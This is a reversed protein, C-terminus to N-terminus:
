SIMKRSGKWFLFPGVTKPIFYTNLSSLFCSGPSHTNTSTVFGIKSRLEVDSTAYHFEEEYQHTVDLTQWASFRVLCVLTSSQKTRKEAHCVNLHWRGLAMVFLFPISSKQIRKKFKLWSGAAFFSSITKFFSCGEKTRKIQHPSEAFYSNKKSVETLTGFDGDKQILETITKPVLGHVM